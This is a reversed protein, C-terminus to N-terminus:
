VEWSVTDERGRLIDAVITKVSGVAKSNGANKRWLTMLLWDRMNNKTLLATHLLLAKNM